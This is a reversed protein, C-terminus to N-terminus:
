EADGMDVVIEEIRAPCISYALVHESEIRKFTVKANSKQEVLDYVNIYTDRRGSHTRIVIRVVNDIPSHM